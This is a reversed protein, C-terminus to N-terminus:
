SRRNRRTRKKSGRSSRHTRRSRRRGGIAADVVPNENEVVNVPDQNQVAPAQQQQQAAPPFIRAEVFDHFSLWRDDLVRFKITEQNEGNRTEFFAIINPEEQEFRLEYTTGPCIPSRFRLGLRSGVNQYFLDIDQADITVDLGTHIAFGEIHITLRNGNYSIRWPFGEEEFVFPAQIRLTHEAM